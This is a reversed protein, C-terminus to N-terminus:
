RMSRIEDPSLDLAVIEALTRRARSLRSKVTGAPVRLLTAVQDTSLEELVCLSLIERDRDTLRDFSRRVRAAVHDRDARDLVEDSHDRHPEGPPLKALLAQHRRLARVNNRALHSATVLLWPLLSPGSTRIRGRKRWAEAFTLAVLDEADSPTAALRLVPRFVRDRHRRFLAAFADGDGARARDLLEEDTPEDDVAQLTRCEGIPEADAGSDLAVARRRCRTCRLM